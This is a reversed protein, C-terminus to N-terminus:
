LYFHVSCEQYFKLNKDMLTATIPRNEAQVDFSQVKIFLFLVHPLFCFLVFIGELSCAHRISIFKNVKICNIM